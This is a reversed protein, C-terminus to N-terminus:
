EVREKVVSFGDSTDRRLHLVPGFGGHRTDPAAQARRDKPLSSDIDDVLWKNYVTISLYYNFINKKDVSNQIV